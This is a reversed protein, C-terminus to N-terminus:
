NVRRWAADESLWRNQLKSALRALVFTQRVLRCLAFRLAVRGGIRGCLTLFADSRSQKRLLRVSLSHTSLHAAAGCVAWSGRMCHLERDPVVSVRRVYVDIHAPQMAARSPHGALAKNQNGCPFYWRHSYISDAAATHPLLLRARATILIEVRVRLSPPRRRAGAATSHGHGWRQGKSEFAASHFINATAIQIVVALLALFLHSQCKKAEHQMPRGNCAGNASETRSTPSKIQM